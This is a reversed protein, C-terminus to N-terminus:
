FSQIVTTVINSAVARSLRDLAPENEAFYTAPDTSVEYPERFVVDSPELLAKGTKSDTMSVRVGVTLLVKTTRGSGPDFVIPGSSISTVTGKLIVDSGDTGSQVRYRTRANFEHIVASTLTQEIKFRFTQNQFTPVAITRVNPPLLASHTGARYGCGATVLVSLVVITFNLYRFPLSGTM